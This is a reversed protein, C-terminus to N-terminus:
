INNMKEVGTNILCRHCSMVITKKCQHRIRATLLQASAVVSLMIFKVAVSLIFNTIIRLSLNISYRITNCSTTVSLKLNKITISLTLRIDNHLTFMKNSHQISNCQFRSLLNKYMM